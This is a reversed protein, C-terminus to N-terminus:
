ISRGINFGKEGDAYQKKMVDVFQPVIEDCAGKREGGPINADFFRCSSYNSSDRGIYVQHSLDKTVPYTVLLHQSKELLAKFRETKLENKSIEEDAHPRNNQQFAFHHVDKNGEKESKLEKNEEKIAENLFIKDDKLYNAPDKGQLLLSLYLNSMPQCMGVINGQDNIAQKYKTLVESQTTFSVGEKKERQFFKFM